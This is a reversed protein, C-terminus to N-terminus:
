GGFNLGLTWSIFKNTEDGFANEPLMFYRAEVNVAFPLFIPRLSIGGLAHAGFHSERGLLDGLDLEYDSQSELKELVLEEGFLPTILHYGMGGGVYLRLMPLTLYNFKASSYVSLRGFVVEQDALDLNETEYGFKYKAYSGELGLEFDLFPLIDVFLHVGGLIPDKIDNSFISISEADGIEGDFLDEYADHGNRDIGIHFGTQVIALAPSTAALLLLVLIQLIGSTKM